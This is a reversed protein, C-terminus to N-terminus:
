QFSRDGRLRRGGPQEFIKCLGGSHRLVGRFIEARFFRVSRPIRRFRRRGMDGFPIQHREPQRKFAQYDVGAWYGGMGEVASFMEQYIKTYDDSYDALKTSTTELTSFQVGIQKGM